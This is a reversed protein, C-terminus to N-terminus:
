AAQLRTLWRAHLAALALERIKLIGEAALEVVPQVGTSLAAVTAEESGGDDVLIFTAEARRAYAEGLALYFAADEHRSVACLLLDPARTPLAEGFRELVLRQGTFLAALYPHDCAVRPRWLAAEIVAECRQQSPDFVADVGAAVAEERETLFSGALLIRGGFGRGRLARIAAMREEHAAIAGELVVAVDISLEVARDAMQWPHEVSEVTLDPHAENLLRQVEYRVAVNGGLLVRGPM